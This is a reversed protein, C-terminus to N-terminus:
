TCRAPLLSRQRAAQGPAASFGVWRFGFALLGDFTRARNRVDVYDAHSMRLMSGLGRDVRTGVTILEDPREVPPPRLLLADVASFIAVNAGTGFAISVVAIASFAPAKVFVRLGHRLDQWIRELTLM